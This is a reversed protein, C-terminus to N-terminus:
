KEELRIIYPLEVYSVVAEKKRQVWDVEEGLLKNLAIGPINIDAALCSMQLGGSMRTNIELLYLKSEKYKFQVNFPYKIDINATIIGVMNLIDEDYFVREDRSNGKERPIAILGKKTNLCDVSIENGELYPMLIIDDFDEVAELVALYDDYSIGVGAYSKIKKLGKSEKSIKRFSKGGEDRVFKACVVENDASLKAYAKKFEEVSTVKYYDPVNIGDIGKFFDYTKVKDELLSVTEYDDLLVKVGIDNFKDINQSISLMNRRPVFVDVQRSKCFDLCYNIYETGECTPEEHWEDCVKQIVSNKQMNSGIIYIKKNADAKMLEILRYSTSFWHNFWVRIMGIEM